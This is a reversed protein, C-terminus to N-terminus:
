WGGCGDGKGCVSSISKMPILNCSVDCFSNLLHSNVKKRKLILLMLETSSGSYYIGLLARSTPGAKWHMEKNIVGM